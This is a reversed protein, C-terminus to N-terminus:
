SVEPLLAVSALPLSQKPKAKAKAGTSKRKDHLGAAVEAAYRAHNLELLRDLIERRADTGITHRIGQSTEHFGHDLDLDVWGYSDRVAFDLAVHLERLRPIGPSDDSSDHVRNYTKTLGENNMVMLSARHENLERGACEVSETYQPQPFPEFHRTPRYAADTRLTSPYMEVWWWHFASSLVGLHFDDSYAFVVTADSFVQTASVFAPMVTKSVRAIVLVRPMGAIASYLEERIRWFQWWREPWGLYSDGKVSVEPFVRAALLEFCEHYEKARELPWNSFNVAYRSALQLPHANLDEGNLYPLVVKGNGDDARLLTAAEAAGLIFGTVALLSGQFSLGTSEMLTMPAGAVRSAQGLGANIAAVAVDGLICSGRWPQASMWIESIELSAQGPWPRSKVAHYIMWGRVGLLWDLGVERSDGQAVSNTALMGLTNGVNAARLYFYVILDANGKRGGAINEVLYERYASGWIGSIRKGGLFPPNGIIADFGSTRDPDLFVEPFALPWHMPTRQLATASRDTDLWEATKGELLRRAAQREGETRTEDFANSLWASVSELLEDRKLTRRGCSALASGAVVDGLLRLPETEALLEGHMDAKDEADRVTLVTKEMLLQAAALAEDKARAIADKLKVPVLRGHGYLVDLEDMSTIGLLSDGCQIAHDLFTFPREKSLTTLWLSLKAMETALPDRDVGYLCHDAIARRALVEDDDVHATAAPLGSRSLNQAEEAAWAEMLREALYRGAAVLIAGSGVAPDCVKLKLIEGAPILRWDEPSAGEAPGPRYVLPELAYHVVEDALEKTTYQAGTDRRASVRTVYLGGPLVVYPEERVDDRLYPLFPRIRAALAADSDCVALLRQERNADVGAEARARAPAKMRTIEEIWAAFEQPGRAWQVEAESLTIEEGEAVRGAFGLVTEQARLCGHDLLGEYVHGIQEIDLTRYSVVRAESGIRLVKLADLIGLMTRDDVPLPISEVEKWETDGDRGELFPYRDPDFLSGGYAPLRFESHNVGGHVARFLALIRHWAATRRELAETGWRAQERLQERLSAVAYSSSYVRDSLPFLGREEASLMFVLRMLVTVVASYLEGPAVGTLLAGDRERDARGIADVLLEIASRVQRGLTTTVEAQADASERFLSDLSDSEGVAFFRRAELLSVFGDLLAPEEAFLSTVFTGSGSAAGKPAWLLTLNEGDTLIAVPVSTERCVYEAQELPTAAWSGHAQEQRPRRDFPTGPPHNFVLVRAKQQDDIDALIADPRLSTRHEPLRINFAAPVQQDERLEGSWDLLDHLLFRRWVTRRAISDGDGDLFSALRERVLTRRETELKPVGNPFVRRLVPPTLFAGEPELLGILENLSLGTGSNRIGAPDTQRNRPRRGRRLTTM